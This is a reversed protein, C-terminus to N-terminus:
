SMIRCNYSHNVQLRFVTLGDDQTITHVMVMSLALKRQVYALGQEASLSASLSLSLFDICQLTHQLLPVCAYVSESFSADVCRCHLSICVRKGLLAELNVVKGRKWVGSFNAVPKVSGAGGTLASSVAAGSESRSLAVCVCVCVCVGCCTCSM